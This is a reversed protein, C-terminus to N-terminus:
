DTLKCTAPCVQFGLAEAITTRKLLIDAKSPLKCMEIGQPLTLPQFTCTDSDWVNSLVNIMMQYANQSLKCHQYVNLGVEKWHDRIIDIARGVAYMEVKSDAVVDAWLEPHAKFFELFLYRVAQPHGAYNNGAECPVKLSEAGDLCGKGFTEVLYAEVEKAKRKAMCKLVRPDIIGGGVSRQKKRVGVGIAAAVSVKANGISRRHKMQQVQKRIRASTTEQAINLAIAHEQRLQKAAARASERQAHMTAENRVRCAEVAARVEARNEAGLRARRNELSAQRRTSPEAQRADRALERATSASLLRQMGKIKGDYDSRSVRLNEKYKAAEREKDTVSADLAIRLEAIQNHMHAHQQAAATAAVAAAIQLQEVTKTLHDIESQDAPQFGNAANQAKANDSRKVSRNPKRM